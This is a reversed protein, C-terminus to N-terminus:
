GRHVREGVRRTEQANGPRHRVPQQEDAESQRSGSHRRAQQQGRGVIQLALGHADEVDMHRCGPEAHGSPHSNGGSRQALQYPAVGQGRNGTWILATSYRHADHSM